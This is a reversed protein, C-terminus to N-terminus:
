QDVMSRKLIENLDSEYNDSYDANFKDIKDPKVDKYKKVKGTLSMNSDKKGWAFADTASNNKKVKGKSTSTGWADGNGNSGVSTVNFAEINSNNNFADFNAFDGEFDFSAAAPNKNKKM